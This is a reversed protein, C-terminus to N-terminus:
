GPGAQPMPLEQRVKGLLELDVDAYILGTDTEMEACIRGWPDVLMSHGYANFNRSVRGVQAPAAVYFQGEIARAQLLIRWHAKGTPVTFNAPVFVIEAGRRRLDFYLHSFRVDFCISLGVKGIATAVVPPAETGPSITESERFRVQPLDIDFLMRKRYAALLEGGAGILVSTNFVRRSNDPDIEYISGLLLMIGNSAAQERFGSVLAGDLSQAAHRKKDPGFVGLFMEPFALLRAGRSAAEQILKATRALNADIVEHVGAPSEQFPNSNTQALAIRSM